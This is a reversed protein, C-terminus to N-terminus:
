RRRKGKRLIMRVTDVKELLAALAGREHAWVLEVAADLRKVAGHSDGRHALERADRVQEYAWGVCARQLPTREIKKDM